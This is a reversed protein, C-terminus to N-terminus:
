DFENSEEESEGELKPFKALEYETVLDNYDDGAILREIVENPWPKTWSALDYRPLYFVDEPPLNFNATARISRNTSLEVGTTRMRLLVEPIRLVIGDTNEITGVLDIFDQFLHKGGPKGYSGELIRVKDLPKGAEEDDYGEPLVERDTIVKGNNGMALLSYTGDQALYFIQDKSNRMVLSVDYVNLAFLLKIASRERPQKADKGAVKPWKKDIFEWLPNNYRQDPDIMIRRPRLEGNVMVPWWAAAFVVEEAPELGTLVKGDRKVPKNNSSKRETREVKGDAGISPLVYFLRTGSGTPMWQSEFTKQDGTDTTTTTKKEGYEKSKAGFAM